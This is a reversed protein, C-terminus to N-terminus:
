PVTKGITLPDDCYCQRDCNGQLVLGFWGKKEEKHNSIKEYEISGEVENGKERKPGNVLVLSDLVLFGM